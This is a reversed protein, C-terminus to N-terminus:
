GIIRSSINSQNIEAFDNIKTDYPDTELDIRIDENEVFNNSSVFPDPASVTNNPSFMNSQPDPLINENAVKKKISKLRNILNNECDTINDKDNTIIPNINTISMTYENMINECITNIDSNSINSCISTEFISGLDTKNGADYYIYFVLIKTIYNVKCIVLLNNKNSRYTAVTAKSSRPKYICDFGEENFLESIEPWENYKIDVIMEPVSNNGNARHYAMQDPHVKSITYTNNTQIRLKGIIPIEKEIDFTDISENMVSENIQVIPQTSKNEFQINNMRIVSLIKVLNMMSKHTIKTYNYETQKKMAADKAAELERNHEFGPHTNEDKGAKIEIILNFDELYIDTIWYKIEGNFEYPIIPGPMQIKDPDLDMVKDLWEIAFKEYKGTYTFKHVRDSWIYTGSIKRNALMKEQHKIDNMLSTKGYVRLMREQAIEKIKDKCKQSGCHQSPKASKENWSTPKGCIRCLGYPRGHVKNYIYQATSTDSPIESIHESEVHDILEQKNSKNKGCIPCKPM